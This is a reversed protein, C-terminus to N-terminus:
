FLNMSDLVGMVEKVSTASSELLAKESDNLKL